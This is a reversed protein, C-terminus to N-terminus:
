LFPHPNKEDQRKRDEASEPIKELNIASRGCGRAAEFEGASIVAAADLFELRLDVVEVLGMVVRLKPVNIELLAVERLGFGTVARGEFAIRLVDVGAGMESLAQQAAFPRRFRAWQEFGNGGLIGFVVIAVAEHRQGFSEARQALGVGGDRDPLAHGLVMGIGARPDLQGFQEERFVQAILRPRFHVLDQGISRMRRSKLALAFPNPDISGFFQRPLNLSSLVPSGATLRLPTVQLSALPNEGDCAKVAFM